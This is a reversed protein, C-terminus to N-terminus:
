TGIRKKASAQGARLRSFRSAPAHCRFASAVLRPVASVSSGPEREPEDEAGEGWHSVALVNRASEFSDLPHPALLPGVPEFRRPM